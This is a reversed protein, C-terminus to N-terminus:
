RRVEEAAFTPASLAPYQELDKALADREAKVANYTAVAEDAKEAEVAEAHAANLAEICAELRKVEERAEDRDKRAKEMEGRPTRPNLATGDNRVATTEQRDREGKADDLLSRIAASGQPKDLMKAIRDYLNSM